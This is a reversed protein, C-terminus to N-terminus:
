FIQNQPPTYGFLPLFPSPPQSSVFPCPNPHPRPTPTPHPLPTWVGRDEGVLVVYKWLHYQSNLQIKPVYIGQYCPEHSWCPAWRPRVWTPGMNAEPVKSDPYRCDHCIGGATLINMGSLVSPTFEIPSPDISKINSTARFRVCDRRNTQFSIVNSRHFM